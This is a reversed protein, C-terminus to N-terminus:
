FGPKPQNIRAIKKQNIHQQYKSISKNQDKDQLRKARRQERREKKPLIISLKETQTATDKPHFLKHNTEYKNRTSILENQCNAKDVLIESHKLIDKNAVSRSELPQVIDEEKESDISILSDQDAEVYNEKDNDGWILGYLFSIM